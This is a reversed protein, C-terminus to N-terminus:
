AAARYRIALRTGGRAGVSIASSRRRRHTHQVGRCAAGGTSPVLSRPLFMDLCCVITIRAYLAASRRRPLVTSNYYELARAGPPSVPCQFLTLESVQAVVIDYDAAAICLGM